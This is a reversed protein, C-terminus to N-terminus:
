LELATASEVEFQTVDPEGALVEPLASEFTEFHDTEAHAAFAAENEYQEIFRFVNSDDVDTAVRYDIIGDEDRSHEALEGVLELAETRRDPDIPFTAHVVLM